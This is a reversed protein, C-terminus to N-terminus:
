NLDSLDLASGLSKAIFSSITAVDSTQVMNQANVFFTKLQDDSIKLYNKVLCLAVLASLTVTVPPRTGDELKVVPIIKKQSLLVSVDEDTLLYNLIHPHFEMDTEILMAANANDPLMKLHEYIDKVLKKRLIDQNM